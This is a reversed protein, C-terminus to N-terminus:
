LEERQENLRDEEQELSRLLKWLLSALFKVDENTMYPNPYNTTPQSALELLRTREESSLNPTFM